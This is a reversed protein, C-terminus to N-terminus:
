IKMRGFVYRKNIRIRVLSLVNCKALHVIDANFYANRKERFCPKLKKGKLYNFNIVILSHFVYRHIFSSTSKGPFNGFVHFNMLQITIGTTNNLTVGVSMLFKTIACVM